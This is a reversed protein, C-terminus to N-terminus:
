LMIFNIYRSSTGYREHCAIERKCALPVNNITGALNFHAHKNLYATTNM